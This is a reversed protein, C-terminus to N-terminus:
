DEDDSLVVQRGRSSGKESVTRWGGTVGFQAPSSPIGRATKGPGGGQLPEGCMECEKFHQPNQFACNACQHLVQMGRRSPNPSTCMECTGSSGSNEAFFCVPCMWTVVRTTRTPSDRFGVYKDGAFSQPSQFRVTSSPPEAGLGSRLRTQGLGLGMTTRGPTGFPSDLQGLGGLSSGLTRGWSAEGWQQQQQQQQQEMVGTASAKRGWAGSGNISNDLALPLGSTAALGAV